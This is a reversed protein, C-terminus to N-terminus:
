KTAVALNGDNETDKVTVEQFHRCKYIWRSHTMVRGGLNQILLFTWYGLPLSIHARPELYGIVGTLGRM